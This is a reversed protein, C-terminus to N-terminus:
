SSPAVAETDACGSRTTGGIGRALGAAGAATVGVGATGAGAGAASGGFSHLPSDPEDPWGSMSDDAIRLAAAFNSDQRSPMHGSAALRLTERALKSFYTWPSVGSRRMM